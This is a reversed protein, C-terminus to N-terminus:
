NNSNDRWSTGSIKDNVVVIAISKYGSFWFYQKYGDGVILQDEPGLVKFAHSSPEGLKLRSTNEFKVVPNLPRNTKISCGCLLLLFLMNLLLKM